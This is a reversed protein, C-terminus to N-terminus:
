GGFSYRLTAGFNRGNVFHQREIGTEFGPEGVYRNAAANTLNSATISLSFNYPLKFNVSADLLGFASIYRGDIPNNSYGFLVAKSRWTYVVRASVVKDEYMGTLSYNYKSTLPQVTDVAVGNL